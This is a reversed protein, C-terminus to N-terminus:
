PHDTGLRDYWAGDQLERAPDGEVGVIGDLRFHGVQVFGAREAVRRSAANGWAAGLQVRHRGMGGDGLPRLAHGVALAVAEGVVGRGRADPHAWYGVEANGPCMEDDLRFVGVDAVLRDTERDAVAWTVRRGLSAELRGRTVYARADDLTYPHPMTPLWHRTVPDSCAEVVRPLDADTYPRLRVREGELVPVPWWTTRPVPEDGPRLSAYWGDRLDGRQPLSLPRTGHFTFGAAHAVRWSGLNGVHTSWHVVPMGAVDFCWRTALRVARTMVGRGRAWPALAYGIDPPPGLRVDLNGAFRAPGDADTTEVAWGYSTQDRWGTPVIETVWEVSSRREYPVPVTTWRITDPDTCMTALDDVDDITHARLTVVGDTLVPVHVDADTTTM